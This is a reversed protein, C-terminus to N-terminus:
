SKSSKCSLTSVSADTSVTPELIRADGPAYLVGPSYLHSPAREPGPNETLYKRVDRMAPGPNETKPLHRCKPVGAQTKPLYRCKPLM